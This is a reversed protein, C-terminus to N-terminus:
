QCEVRFMAQLRWKRDIRLVVGDLYPSSTSWLYVFVPQVGFALVISDAGVAFVANREDAVGTFFATRLRVM